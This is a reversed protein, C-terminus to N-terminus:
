LSSFIVSNNMKKDEISKKQNENMGWFGLGMSKLKRKKEFGQGM